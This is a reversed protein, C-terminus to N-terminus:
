HTFIHMKLLLKSTETANITSEERFKVSSIIMGTHPTSLTGSTHARHTLLKNKVFFLFFLIIKTKKLDNLIM